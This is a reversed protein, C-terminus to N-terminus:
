RDKILPINYELLIQDIEHQNEKILTNLKEKWRKERFRVAMSFSYTFRMQPKEPDAKLPLLVLEVEDQYKKAFYGATPGWLVAVDLEGSVIDEIFRAGPNIKLDSSQTQYPVISGILNNHFVWLQAAGHNSLGLKVNNGEENVFKDLMSPDTISDLQRGKAYVLVYTSTFYPETTAALEFDRPVSIVSDCKFGAGTESEAMLTNRIFGMRQPFFEYKLNLGLKKAM